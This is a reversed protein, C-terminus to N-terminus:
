KAMLKMVIESVQKPVRRNVESPPSPMRAIHCHILEVPDSAVFPLRGTLMQYITVGLSYFDSRYDTTRNMRGTQQPSIYRLSGEIVDRSSASVEERTLRSAIGFGILKM